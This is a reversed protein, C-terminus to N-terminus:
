GDNGQIIAAEHTSMSGPQQAHLFIKVRKIKQLLPVPVLVRNYRCAHTSPVIGKM